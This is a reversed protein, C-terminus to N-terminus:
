CLIPPAWSRFDRRSRPILRHRSRVEIELVENDENGPFEDLAEDCATCQPPDLGVTEIREPLHALM